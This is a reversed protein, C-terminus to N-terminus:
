VTQCLARKLCPPRYNPGKLVKGDERYIPKGDEGLKSMNSAHVERFCEDVDIGYTLATGYVVYLLDCLEKAINELDRADMAEVLEKHEEDILRKRIILLQDPLINTPKPATACNYAKHFERVMEFNTKSLIEIQKKLLDTQAELEVSRSLWDM